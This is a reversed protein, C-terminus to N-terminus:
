AVLTHPRLSSTYSAKRQCARGCTRCVCISEEGSGQRRKGAERTESIEPLVYATHSTHRIHRIGYTVYAAERTESIEPM